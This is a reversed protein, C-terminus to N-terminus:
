GRMLNIIGRRLLLHRRRVLTMGWGGRVMHEAHAQARYKAAADYDSDVDGGDSSTSGVGGHHGYGGYHICLRSISGYLAEAITPIRNTTTSPAAHGHHQHSASPGLSPPPDLLLGDDM